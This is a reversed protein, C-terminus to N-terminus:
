PTCLGLAVVAATCAYPVSRPPPSQTTETAVPLETAAGARRSGRPRTARSTPQVSTARPGEPVPGVTDDPAAASVIGGRAAPPLQAPQSQRSVAVAESPMSAGPAAAPVRPADATASASREAAIAAEISPPSPVGPTTVTGAGARTEAVSLPSQARSPNPHERLSWLVLCAVGFGLVGVLSWRTGRARVAPDRGAAHPAGVDAATPAVSGDGAAAPDRIEAPPPSTGVDGETSAEGDGVERRLDRAVRDVLAATVEDLQEQFAATLLRDCLRNVRRPVGETADFIREHAENSFLPSREWDVHRLRHEIYSRTESASLVGLDCFVFVPERATAPSVSALKSRLEPPGVLLVQLPSQMTALAILEQIADARLHQAEDVVVLARRGSATVTTLFAQLGARLEDDLSEAAAGGRFATLISALLQSADLETGRLITSLIPPQTEIASLLKYVLTTKGTGTDGSLIIFSGGEIVAHKVYSLARRHSRAEFYFDPDPTMAFPRGKLGFHEEYMPVLRFHPRHRDLPLGPRAAVM